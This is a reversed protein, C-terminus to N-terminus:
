LYPFRADVDHRLVAAVDPFLEWREKYLAVIREATDAPEDPTVIDFAQVRAVKEKLHTAEDDGHPSRMHVAYDELTAFKVWAADHFGDDPHGAYRGAAGDEIYPATAFYANLMGTFQDFEHESPQQRYGHYAIHFIAM